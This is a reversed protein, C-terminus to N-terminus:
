LRVGRVVKARVAHARGGELAIRYVHPEITVRVESVSKSFLGKREVETHAPFAAELTGALAAIFRAVDSLDRGLTAALARPDLRRARGLGCFSCGETRGTTDVALAAGCNPCKAMEM